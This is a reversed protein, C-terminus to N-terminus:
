MHMSLVDVGSCHFYKYSCYVFVSCDVTCTLVTASRENISDRPPLNSEEKLSKHLTCQFM